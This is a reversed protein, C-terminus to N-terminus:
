CTDNTSFVSINQVQVQSHSVLVNKLLLATSSSLRNAHVDTTSANPGSEVCTVTGLDKGKLRFSTGITKLYM